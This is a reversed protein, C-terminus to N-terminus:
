TALELNSGSIKVLNSIRSKHVLEKQKIEADLM